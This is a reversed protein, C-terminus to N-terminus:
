HTLQGRIEGGPNAATHVNAYMRGAMLDAMQADTLTATGTIPSTPPQFPIVVPANSGPAAPGHIHAMTAPGTLGSYNVTYSLKKTATDLTATAEGTGKSSNPPVEAASTMTGHFQVMEARATATLGSTALAAGALAVAALIHRKTMVPEQENNKRATCVSPDRASNAPPPAGIWLEFTDLV